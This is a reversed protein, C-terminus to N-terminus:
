LLEWEDISINAQRLIKALFGRSIDRKHPNPITLKLEEKVMYQHKGGPYPGDFGAQRLYYILDRRSIPGFIPM